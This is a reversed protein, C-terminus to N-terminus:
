LWVGGASTVGQCVETYVSECVVLVARLALIFGRGKRIVHMGDM